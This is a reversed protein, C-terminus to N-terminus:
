RRAKRAERSGRPFGGPLWLEGAHTVMRGRGGAGILGVRANTKSASREGFRGRPRLRADDLGMGRTTMDLLPLM